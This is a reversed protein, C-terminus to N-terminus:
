ADTAEPNRIPRRISAAHAIWSPAIKACRPNGAGLQRLMYSMTLCATWDGRSANLAVATMAFDFELRGDAAPGLALALGVATVPDRAASGFRAAPRIACVNSLCASM